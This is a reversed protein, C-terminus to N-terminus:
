RASKASRMWRNVEDSLKEWDSLEMSDMSDIKDILEEATLMM